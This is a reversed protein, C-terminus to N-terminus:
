PTPTRTPKHTSSPVPTSTGVQCYKVDDSSVQENVPSVFSKIFFVVPYNWQLAQKLALFDVRFNNDSWNAAECGCCMDIVTFDGVMPAPSSVHLVTGYGIVRLWSPALAVARGMYDSWRIGSSTVDACRVGDWNATHCNVGGLSPNYYSYGVKYVQSTASPVLSPTASRVFVPTASPIITATSFGYGSPFGPLGSGGSSKVGAPVVTGFHYLEAGRTLNAISLDSSHQINKALMFIWGGFILVGLLLYGMSALSISQENTRVFKAPTIISMCVEVPLKDGVDVLNLGGGIM